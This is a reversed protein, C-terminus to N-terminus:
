QTLNRPQWALKPRAAQGRAALIQGSRDVDFPIRVTVCFGDDLNKFTLQHSSAYLHELRARTNRLGVGANLAALSNSPLGNGSDRVEIKLKPGERAAEVAIWGPRAYPAIGHRIANEALPQLLLNPVEADLTEPDVHIAVKLRDGFRTQEIELYKQLVDLEQRLPVAQTGSSHFTMRLLDGLRAIMADAAKLNTHMLGSITNLTNFLFHPQLQRQLAQLQAEVLRTELHAADLARAESERRYALAHALGALFLYSMLLWDLQMLFDKGAYTGFGALTTPRGRRFLLARAGLLITTHVIAYSLLGALHVLAQVRWRRRGLEYKLALRMIMPALLAPVYWYVLNLLLLPVRLSSTERGELLQLGYAQFTSSVGFATAIAFVVWTPVKVPEAM